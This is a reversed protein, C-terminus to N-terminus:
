RSHVNVGLTAEMNAELAMLQAHDTTKDQQLVRAGDQRTAELDLKGTEQVQVRRDADLSQMAALREKHQHEAAQLSMKQENVDMARDRQATVEQLAQTLQDVLGELQAAKANALSAQAEPSGQATAALIKPDITARVRAAAEKAGEFDMTSIYIDGFVNMWEPNAQFLKGLNENIEQKRNEWTPGSSVICEFAGQSLDNTKLRDGDAYPTMIKVRNVQGGAGAMNRTHPYNFYIPILELLAEGCHQLAMELAFHYGYTSVDTQSMQLAIAKGSQSGPIDKMPDRMGLVQRMEETASTALALLEGPFPSQPIPMPPGFQPDPNVPLYLREEKHAKDWIAKYEGGIHEATVLMKAMVPNAIAKATITEVYNLKRQQDQIDRTICEYRRKGDVTRERSHVLCVPFVTGPYESNKELIETGSVFWQSWAGGRAADKFWFEAIHITEEDENADVDAGFSSCEANPWERKYNDRDMSSRIFFWQADVLGPEKAAPDPFFTCIDRISKLRPEYRGNKAKEITVRWGGLQQETASEIADTYVRPAHSSREVQEVLGDMIQAVDESAQADGPLIKISPPNKRSANSVSRVFMPVMNMTVRIEGPQAPNTWQEGAAFKALERVDRHFEAWFDSARTWADQVDFGWETQLSEAQEQDLTEPQGQEDHDTMELVGRVM